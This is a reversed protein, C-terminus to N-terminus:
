KSEKGKFNIELSNEITDLDGPVRSAALNERAINEFVETRNVPTDKPAEIGLRIQGGRIELVKVTIRNGITISENAKRTLVLM